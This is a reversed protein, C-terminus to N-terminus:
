IKKAKYDPSNKLHEDLKERSLLGKQAGVQQVVSMANIGGWAMAEPLTKGLYIASVM